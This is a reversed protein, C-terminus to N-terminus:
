SIVWKKCANELEITSIKLKEFVLTILTTYDVCCIDTALREDFILNNEFSKVKSLVFELLINFLTPMPHLRAEGWHSSQFVTSKDDITVVCETIDHKIEIIDVFELM